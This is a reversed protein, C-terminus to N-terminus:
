LCDDFVSITMHCSCDRLKWSMYCGPRPVANAIGTPMDVCLGAVNHYM